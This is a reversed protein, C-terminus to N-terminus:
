EKMKLKLDNAIAEYKAILAQLKTRERRVELSKYAKRIVEVVEPDLTTLDDETFSIKTARPAGQTGSSTGKPTLEVSDAQSAKAVSIYKRGTPNDPLVLTRGDEVLKNIPTTTSTGDDNEIILAFGTSTTADHIVYNKM